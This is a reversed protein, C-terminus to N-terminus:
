HVLKGSSKKLVISAYCFYIFLLITFILGIGIFRFNFTLIIFLYCLPATSSVFLLRTAQYYSLSTKFFLKVIIQGIMAFPLFLILLIVLFFIVLTPYLLINVFYYLIKIGVSKVLDSGIFIQNTQPPILQKFIGPAQNEATGLHFKSNILRYFVTTKTILIKLQPYYQFSREGAQDKTDIMSIVAGKRDKAFYPIPKDISVEGNQIYITPLSAIPNIFEEKFFHNFNILLKIFFPIVIIAILLLFYKLGLGRWRKGVDVYLKPSFFALYLAQWYSYFPLDVPRMKKNSM